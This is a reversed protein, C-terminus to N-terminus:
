IGYFSPAKGRQTTGGGMLKDVRRNIRTYLWEREM